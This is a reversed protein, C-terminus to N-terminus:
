TVAAPANVAVEAVIVPAIVAVLPAKVPLIVIDPVDDANAIPEVGGVDAVAPVPM